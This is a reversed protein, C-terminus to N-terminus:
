PVATKPEEADAENKLGLSQWYFYCTAIQGGLIGKLGSYWLPILHVSGQILFQSIPLHEPFRNLKGVPVLSGSLPSSEGGRQASSSQVTEM